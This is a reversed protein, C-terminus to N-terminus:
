SGPRGRQPEASPGWQTDGPRKIRLGGGSLLAAPGVAGEGFRRRVEDVARAAAEGTGGAGEDPRAAGGDGAAVAEAMAPPLDLSLQEGPAADGAMLNAVGVGLLRVGPAVDMQELLGSALEAIRQGTTVPTPSTVSRTRTSFDGYRVKLTVTRSLLGAQRMRSAVAHAMRLAEVHLADPDRLDAPYTEEHSISKVERDPQVAREDIGQALRSLHGGNAKGVATELVQPPLRALDGITRLGLRRLRGATAPGVGWLAEIPLPHLFELEHGPEIVYVGSRAEPRRGSGDAAPKAAESALKALFKVRAAGVSCSLHLEDGVASRIATGIERASGLLRLAGTVDLFAEDLSIGEVLPTFRQFIEHMQRSIEMYRGFRGPVFVAQPCLRRAQVSPMASRIGYARAEYSCSAVVGRSGTGGVILPRGALSPEDLAEVSAYFADMDVHLIWRGAPQGPTLSDGM